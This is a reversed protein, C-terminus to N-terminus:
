RETGLVDGKPILVLVLVHLSEDKSIGVLDWGVHMSCQFDLFCHFKHPVNLLLSGYGFVIFYPAIESNVLPIDIDPFSFSSRKKPRIGKRVIKPDLM